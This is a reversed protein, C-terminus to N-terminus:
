SGPQPFSSDNGSAAVTAEFVTYYDPLFYTNITFATRQSGLFRGLAEIIEGLCILRVATEERKLVQAQVMLKLCCRLHLGVWAAVVGDGAIEYRRALELLALENGEAAREQERIKQWTESKEYGRDIAQYLSGVASKAIEYAKRERELALVGMQKKTFM